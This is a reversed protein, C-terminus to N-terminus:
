VCLCGCVCRGPVSYHKSIKNKTTRGSATTPSTDNSSNTYSPSANNRLPKLQRCTYFRHSQTAQLIKARRGNEALNKKLNLFPTKKGRRNSRRQVRTPLHLKKHLTHSFFVDNKEYSVSVVFVPSWMYVVDTQRDTQVRDTGPVLYRTCSM